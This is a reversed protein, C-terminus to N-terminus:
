GIWKEALAKMIKLQPMPEDPGEYELSAWGDFGSTRMVDYCQKLDFDTHKGQDNFGHFKASCIHRAHKFMLPLGEKRQDPQFLGFDPCSSINAGVAEVIRVVNRPDASIGFHNEVVIGVGREKAVRTLHKYQGITINIDWDDVEPRGTNVRMTPINLRAAVDILEEFMKLSAARKAPDNSALNTGPINDSLHIFRCEQDKMFGALEDLAAPETSAFHRSSMEFHTIGLQERVRKVLQQITWEELTFTPKGYRSNPFYNHFSWTSVALRPKSHRDQAFGTGAMFTAALSGRLFMRRSIM